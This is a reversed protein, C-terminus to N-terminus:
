DCNLWLKTMFTRSSLSVPLALIAWLIGNKLSNASKFLETYYFQGYASVLLWNMVFFDVKAMDTWAIQFPTLFWVKRPMSPNERMERQRLSVLSYKKGCLQLLYKDPSEFVSMGCIQLWSQPLSSMFPMECIWDKKKLSQIGERVHM